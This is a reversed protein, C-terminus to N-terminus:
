ALPATLRVMTGCELAPGISFTGGIDEMRKRMNRLGNRSQARKEDMGAPGRGDDIIELTFSAPDVKLRIWVSTAQAHRVVNTVSEKAALFLNHRVEPTIAATPLQPPVELRYHLGAVGLYEQAYKCVYNILGELTDNSPNVTWVIEDLAHSTDRATQCIQRAHDAVDEPSNKDGEVMEGLLAVQTLSAGLQDHIDRAIRAREKELAEAQKLREVQRQLKQTSIFHVTGIIIGLLVLTSGSLFWWRRWFPPEVIVTVASGAENWVGDENCATVQFRYEGPQLKSYTAVRIGGAEFWDADHNELRYRFRARDPAALNLSTYFFELRPHGSAPLTITEPGGPSARQPHVPQGEVRVSEILVPPPNTNSQLQAPNVSVLGKITSFWLRGDRARWAGPQSGVTCERTPLGDAKDYARCPVMPILHQAFDNLAKKKVRMLGANSGIWLYGQEDELLYGISNSTLGERTTYHTWAGGVLRALGSGSTGIWVVGDADVWLSSVDDSPLGGPQKRFVTFRGDLFRNLGGGRTGIWISGDPADAIASIENTSLGHQQTFFEWGKEDYRALGGQTGVWLRGRGDQHLALVVPNMEESGPARFFRDTQFQFLGAGWTGVWVRQNQDALVSRVSANLLPPFREGAGNTWHNIFGANYGIWLGGEADQSVSQVVSGRSEEFVEFFRRKVRNLGGGDTGVWLIGERDVLLSSIFSYSLGQNNFGHNTSLSTVRGEADFWYVGAGRTGVVLNGDRDECAATVLITKWPYTGCDRVLRSQSWKQVRGDALRWYGGRPSALLFDLQRVPLNTEVPLAISGSDSIAGIASVGADTGVWVPGGLEAIISRHRSPRGQEVVFTSCGGRDYRWLEGNATYLWVAGKADECAGVLKREAGGQGALLRTVHGDQVLAAGAGDTGIWLRNQSDGFLSVIPSSNLEPMETEELLTFRLGDFRALGKVTGLWLYGERSQTMSLVSNQPLGDDNEWVNITYHPSPQTAPSSAARLDAAVVCLLLGAATSTWLNKPTGMKRYAGAGQPAPSADSAVSSAQAALRFCAHVPREQHFFRVKIMPPYKTM